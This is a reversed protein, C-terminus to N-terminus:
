GGCAGSKWTVINPPYRLQQAVANLRAVLQNMTIVGAQPSPAAFQVTEWPRGAFLVCATFPVLQESSELEVGLASLEASIDIDPFGSLDPSADAM